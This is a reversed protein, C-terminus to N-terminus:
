IRQGKMGILIDPSRSVQFVGPFAATKPRAALIKARRDSVWKEVQKTIDEAASKWGGPHDNARNKNRMDISEDGHVLSGGVHLRAERAPMTSAPNTPQGPRPGIGIVIKPVTVTREQVELVVDAKDEDDVITFLKKKSALAATLDKASQELGIPDISGTRTDICIRILAPDPPPPGASQSLVWLLAVIPAHTV